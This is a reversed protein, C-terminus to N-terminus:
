GGGITPNPNYTEPEKKYAKWAKKAEAPSLKYMSAVSKIFGSETKDSTDQASKLIDDYSLNKYVKKKTDYDKVDVYKRAEDLGAKFDKYQKM